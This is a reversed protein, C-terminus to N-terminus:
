KHNFKMCRLRMRIWQDLTKFQYRNHSFPTAFYNATSRIVLNVRTIADKDLNYYRRTLERVKDKFEEISKSRM